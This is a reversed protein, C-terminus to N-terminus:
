RNPHQIGLGSTGPELSNPPELRSEVNWRKQDILHNGPVGPSQTSFLISDGNLPKAAELCNLWGHFSTFIKRLDSTRWHILSQKWATTQGGKANNNNPIVSWEFLKSTLRQAVQLGERGEKYTYVCIWHEGM